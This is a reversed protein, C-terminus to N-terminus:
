GELAANLATTTRELQGELREIVDSEEPSEIKLEFIPINVGVPVDPFTEALFVAEVLESRVLAFSHFEADSPFNSSLYMPRQDSGVSLLSRIAELTIHIVAVNAPMNVDRVIGSRRIKEPYEITLGLVRAMEFTSYEFVIGFGNLAVEKGVPSAPFLKGDDMDRNVPVTVRIRESCVEMQSKVFRVLSEKEEASSYLM